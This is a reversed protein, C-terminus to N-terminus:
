EVSAVTEIRKKYEIVGDALGQAMRRLYAESKLLRIDEKNTIYGLEVLVAPMRAGMLVYFPAEKIGNERQTPYGERLSRMASHLVDTALKNSEEVKSNLMLDTLIVQLDSIKKESIANERAAVRVADKTRALNLYYLEFGNTRRNSHANCHISLFMDAKKANAMATREELPIFTDDTRTFLIKFGKESLIDGLLKVMALNIDKEYIGGYVAGPDKGGHGADLMITEVTLGLQEILNGNYKHPLNGNAVPLPTREVPRSPPEIRTIKQPKETAFVDVVIRFPEELTFVHFNKLDQIDLVVRTETLKYQGSRVQRLIGDAIKYDRNLTTGLKSNKIDFFLRHPTELSRDPKLLKQSFRVERNLEIVIRTYDDSSTHRIHELTAPLGDTKEPQNSQAPKHEGADAEQDERVAKIESGSAQDLKNLYAQAKPRMDGKPYNHVIRLLDIYAQASDNFYEMQIVAKRLIADDAWTHKPFHITFRQYYDVAQLMDTKQRFIKGTEEAVRGLYFLSKPAYSGEPNTNYASWFFNKAVTWAAKSKSLSPKGMVKQFEKVGALYDRQPDAQVPVAIICLIFLVALGRFFHPM